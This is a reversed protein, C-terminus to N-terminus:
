SRLQPDGILAMATHELDESLYSNGKRTRRAVNHLGEHCILSTLARLTVPRSACVYIKSTANTDGSNMALCDGWDGVEGAYDLTAERVRRRADDWRFELNEEGTAVYFAKVVASREKLREEADYFRLVRQKAAELMADNPTRGPTGPMPVKLIPKNWRRMLSRVSKPNRKLIDGLARAITWDSFMNGQIPMHPPNSPKSRPAPQAKGRTAKSKAPKPKSGKGANRGGGRRPPPGKGM